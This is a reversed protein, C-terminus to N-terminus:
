GRPRDGKLMIRHMLRYAGGYDHAAHHLACRNDWMAVDNASWRWRVQFSEQEVHDCLLSLLNRSEIDSLGLIRMTFARNVFLAKRGTEPHRRVVPHVAGPMQAKLQRMREAGNEYLPDMLVATYNPVGDHLAELGDVMQRVAPSLAAHAAYMSAFLTDGGIEPVEAAHLISISPPIEDFSVDSHWITNYKGSGAGDRTEVRVVDPHDPHDPHGRLAPHSPQIEGLRQGFQLLAGPDLSQGRLFLVQHELQASRVAAIGADIQALDLGSVEAGIVGTLPHVKATSRM